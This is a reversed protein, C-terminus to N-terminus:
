PKLDKLSNSGSIHNSYIDGMERSLPHNKKQDGVDLSLGHTLLFYSSPTGEVWTMTITLFVM